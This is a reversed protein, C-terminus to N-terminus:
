RRPKSKQSWYTFEKEYCAAELDMLREGFYQEADKIAQNYVVPGLEALIYDLVLTAKMEGIEQDLEEGFFRILSDKVKTATEKSLKIAM